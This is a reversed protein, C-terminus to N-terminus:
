TIHECMTCTFFGRGIAACPGNWIAPETAVFEAAFDSLGGARAIRDTACPGPRPLKRRSRRCARRSSGTACLRGLSVQPWGPRQFATSHWATRLASACQNKEEAKPHESRNGKVARLKWGPGEQRCSMNGESSDHADQTMCM